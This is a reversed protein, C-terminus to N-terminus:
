NECWSWINYFTQRVSTDSREILLEVIKGKILPKTVSIIHLTVVLSAKGWNVQSQRLKVCKGVLTRSQLVYTDFSSYVADINSLPFIHLHEALISSNTDVVSIAKLTCLLNFIDKDQESFVYLLSCFYYYRFLSFMKSNLQSVLVDSRYGITTFITLNMTM